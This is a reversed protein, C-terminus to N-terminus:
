PTTCDSIKLLSEAENMVAKGTGEVNFSTIQKEFADMTEKMRESSLEQNRHRRCIASFFEIKALDLIWVSNGDKLIMKTVKDTGDEEHFFKVLASTDFYLNM